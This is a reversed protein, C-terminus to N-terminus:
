IAGFFIKLHGQCCIPSIPWTASSFLLNLGKRSAVRLSGQYSTSKTNSVLFNVLVRKHVCSDIYSHLSGHHIVFATSRFSVDLHM